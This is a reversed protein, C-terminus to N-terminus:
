VMRVLDGRAEAIRQEDAASLFLAGLFELRDFLFSDGIFGTGDLELARDIFYYGVLDRFSDLRRFGDGFRRGLRSHGRRRRRLGLGRGTIVEYLM